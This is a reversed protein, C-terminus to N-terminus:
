PSNRKQLQRNLTRTPRLLGRKRQTQSNEETIKRTLIRWAKWHHELEKRDVTSVNPVKM